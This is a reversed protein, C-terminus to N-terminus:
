YKFFLHFMGVRFIESQPNSSEFMNKKTLRQTFGELDLDYDIDACFGFHYLDIPHTMNEIYEYIDFEEGSDVNDIFAIQKKDSDLLILDGYPDFYCFMIGLHSVLKKASSVSKPREIMDSLVNFAQLVNIREDQKIDVNLLIHSLNDIAQITKRYTEKKM